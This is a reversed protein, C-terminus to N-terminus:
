FVYDRVMDDPNAEENIANLGSASSGDGADSFVTLQPFTYAFQNNIFAVSQSGVINVNTVTTVLNTASSYQSVVSDAVIFMNIGDDAFICRDTGPITGRSTHAGVSSVEYLTNDIVRYAIELMLHMGRDTGATASGLNPQGPFSKIVYSEKGSELQEHYLNRTEQSSLPRSRDKYSPGTINIPITQFQSEM